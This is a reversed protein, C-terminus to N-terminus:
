SRQTSCDKTDITNRPNMQQSVSPDTLMELQQHLIVNSKSLEQALSELQHFIDWHKRLELEYSLQLLEFSAKQKILQSLVSKQRTTYYDQKAIQLDFDGKVVPMNLLQANERVLAPLSREKLQAIEEELKLIESSLSSIKANVNDKVVAKDTFHHLNEELWKIRSKMSLNNAKLRILQHQICLYALHLRAMELRREELLEQSDCTSPTQIDLLQFNEENSREVVELIGQFFHKKTYSTLAATSQEEQRLYKELSFQSLFVLPDTGQGFGSNRFFTMLKAVLDSLAQLENSIKTKKANLIGQSQKLKKTAEEEKAQLSLSKHSTVSAMLQYKNRRQIKLNKLKQLMQLEAELKELEKDELAPTRWDSPQCTKLAEELAAGDLVPQGSEQLAAFAKLEDDALVPLESVVGCFWRLFAEEEEREFLWDFDEGNLAEASPYHIRRLTEVFENGCSM